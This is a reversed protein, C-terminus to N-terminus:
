TSGEGVRGWVEPLGMGGGDKRRRRGRRRREETEGKVGRGGEGEKVREEGRAAAGGPPTGASPSGPAFLYMAFCTHFPSVKLM